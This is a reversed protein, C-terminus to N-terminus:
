ENDSRESEDSDSEDSDATSVLSQHFPHHIPPVFQLLELLDDIKKKNIPRSATYLPPLTVRGLDPTKRKLDVTKFAELTIHSYRYQFQHPNDKSVSIWQIKLWQVEAGQTNVKRNM